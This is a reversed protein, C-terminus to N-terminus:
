RGGDRARGGFNGHGGGYGQGRKGQGQGPGRRGSGEDLDRAGRKGGKGSMQKGISKAVAMDPKVSVPQTWDAPVDRSPGRRAEVYRDIYEGRERESGTWAAAAQIAMLGDQLRLSLTIMLKRGEAAAAAGDSGVPLVRQVQELRMIAACVDEYMEQLADYRQQFDGAYKFTSANKGKRRANDDESFLQNEVAHAGAGLIAMHAAEGAGPTAGLQAPPAVQMLNALQAELAQKARLAENLREQTEAERIVAETAEKIYQTLEAGSDGRGTGQGTGQGGGRRLRARPVRAQTAFARSARSPASSGTQAPRAPM